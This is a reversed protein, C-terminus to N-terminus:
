LGRRVSRQRVTQAGQILIGILDRMQKKEKSTLDVKEGKGYVALLYVPFDDNLYYYIVRAGGRKGHGRAAWRLKRIGGTGRIVDGAEPNEAIYLILEEYEDETFVHAADAVFGHTEAITILIPPITHL